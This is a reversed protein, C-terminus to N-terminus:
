ARRAAGGIEGQSAGVVSARAAVLKLKVRM